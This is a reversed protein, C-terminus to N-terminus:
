LVVKDEKLDAIMVNAGEKAIALASERGIGSNGGTIFATKSQFRKM